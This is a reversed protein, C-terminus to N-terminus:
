RQGFDDLRHAHFLEVIKTALRASLERALADKTKLQVVKSGGLTVQMRRGQPSRPWLRVRSRSKTELANIVKVSVALFAANAPDMFDEEALFDDVQIWLVQDAGAMEGVERCGRKEFNDETQRLTTLTQQPVINKAAKKRLLEQQLDDVVYRKTPPWSIRETPDDLLVLLPGDGLVYEAEVRQSRGFGLMYLFEGGGYWCGCVPLLVAALLTVKGLHRLPHSFRSPTSM